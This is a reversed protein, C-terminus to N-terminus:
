NLLSVFDEFKEGPARAIAPVRSFLVEFPYGLSAHLTARMRASENETLARDLVYQVEIRSLTQQVLRIQQFPAVELWLPAYFSPWFTRGNPDRALNRVRGAIRTLVPLGRGCACPEGVQAYDGLDYRILPMAFNHLATVVVRGVDGPACASGDDRLVELHVSESQVHYHEHLPCQLALTGFEGCSYTDLLPTGWTERVLARLDGPLMESQLTIARLHAPVTGLERSRTVMARLNSPRTQLYMPRQALLWDLQRGIDAGINLTAIPGTRFAAGTIAGWSPGETDQLHPNIVALKGDFDFEHWLYHRLVLAHTIFQAAETFALRVPHGTSGTTASEVLGGHERPYRSARFDAEHGVLDAKRV